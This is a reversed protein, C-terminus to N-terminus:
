NPEEAVSLGLRALLNQIILATLGWIQRSGVHYVRIPQEVGDITVMLDEVARPNALATIPVAFIEDIEDANARTEVPFPVAGVCPTIRYGSPTEADDLEGLRRDRQTERGSEERAERVAGDWPEEGDEIGGGAFAIQGKHQPLSDARRTLITWLEGADVYLPVLVAAPRAHSPPLRKRAPTKLYARIEIIWSHLESDSM